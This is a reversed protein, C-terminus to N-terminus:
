KYIKIIIIIKYSVKKNSNEINQDNNYDNEPTRDNEM